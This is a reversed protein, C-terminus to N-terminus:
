AGGTQPLGNPDDERLAQTPAPLATLKDASQAATPRIGRRALLTAAPFGTPDAYPIPEDPFGGAPDADEDYGAFEGDEETNNASGAEVLHLASLLGMGRAILDRRMPQDARAARKACQDLVQKLQNALHERIALEYAAPVIAPTAELEAIRDRDARLQEAAGTLAENTVYREADLEDIRAWLERRGRQASKLALRLRANDQEEEWRALCAGALDNSLQEQEAALEPSQLLRASELDAAIGAATQKGKKQSGHIVGAAATVRKANM